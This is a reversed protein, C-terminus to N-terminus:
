FNSTVRERSTSTLVVVDPSTALISPAVWDPIRQKAARYNVNWALIRTM